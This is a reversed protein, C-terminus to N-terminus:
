GSWFCCRILGRRRGQYCDPSRFGRCASVFLGPLMEWRWRGAQPLREARSGKGHVTVEAELGLAPAGSARLGLRLLMVLVAYDQRGPARRRDCSALLARADARRIGKPLASRRWGTVGQAAWALDAATRGDPYCFRLFARLAAAFYQASGGADEGGAGPLHIRSPHHPPRSRGDPAKSAALPWPRGAVGLSALGHLVQESPV